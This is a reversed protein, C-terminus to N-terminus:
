ATLRRAIRSLGERLDDDSACLSVRAWGEGREGFAAGPVVSVHDSELLTIAADLSAGLASVDVMVYFAGQPMVYDVGATALIDLAMSRRSRYVDRMATVHTQDGALAAEAAKQSVSSANAHV